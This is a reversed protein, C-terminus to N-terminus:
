EPEERPIELNDFDQDYTLICECKELSAITYHILDIFKLHNKNTRKLSEFILNIDVEKVIINSKLLAVPTTLLGFSM